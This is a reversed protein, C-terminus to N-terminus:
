TTLHRSTEPAVRDYYDVIYRDNGVFWMVRAYDHARVMSEVKDELGEDSRQTAMASSPNLSSRCLSRLSSVSCASTLPRLPSRKERLAFLSEEGNIILMSEVMDAMGSTFQLSSHHAATGIGGAISVGTFDPMARIAYGFEHLYRSLEYARIGPQVTVTQEDQNLSIVQNMQGVNLLLGGHAPCVFGSNSHSQPVSIVKLPRGEEQARRVIEQVQKVSTANVVDAPQCSITSQYNRAFETGRNLATPSGDVDLDGTIHAIGRAILRHYADETTHHSHGLTTAFVRGVGVDHTWAM